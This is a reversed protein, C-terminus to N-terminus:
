IGILIMFKLFIKEIKEKKIFINMISFIIFILSISLTIYFINNGALINILSIGMLISFIYSIIFDYESIYYIIKKM